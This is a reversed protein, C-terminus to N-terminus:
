AVAVGPSVFAVAKQEEMWVEQGWCDVGVVNGCPTLPRDSEYRSDTLSRQAHVIAQVQREVELLKIVM